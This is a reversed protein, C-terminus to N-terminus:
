IDHPAPSPRLNSLGPRTSTYCAFHKGFVQSLGQDTKNKDIEGMSIVNRSPRIEPKTMEIRSPGRGLNGRCSPQSLAMDANVVVRDIAHGSITMRTDIMEHHSARKIIASILTKQGAVSPLALHM